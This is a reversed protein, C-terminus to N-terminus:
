PGARTVFRSNEFLASEIGTFDARVVSYPPIEVRLAKCFDTWMGPESFYLFGNDIELWGCVKMRKWIEKDIGAWEPRCFVTERLWTPKAFENFDEEIATQLILDEVHPRFAAKSIAFMTMELDHKDTVSTLVNPGYRELMSGVDLVPNGIVRVTFAELTECLYMKQFAEPVAGHEFISSGMDQFSCLKKLYEWAKLTFGYKLAEHESENKQFHRDTQPRILRQIRYTQVLRPIYDPNLVYTSRSRDWMKQGYYRKMM